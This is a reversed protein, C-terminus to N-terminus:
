KKFAAIIALLKKDYIEYNFKVLFLKKLYYAIPHLRKESIQKLIADIAYDLADTKLIYPKKQDPSIL